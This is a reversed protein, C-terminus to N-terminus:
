GRDGGRGTSGSESEGPGGDEGSGPGENGAKHRGGKAREKGGEGRGEGEDGGQSEEFSAPKTKSAWSRMIPEERYRDRPRLFGPRANFLWWPLRMVVDRVVQKPRFLPETYPVGLSTLASLHLVIAVVGATVGYLGLTAGLIMLAFRLMRLALGMPYHAVSFSSLATVAVVIVMIPSIIKASVAAEGLLLAGVIGVTQGVAGPLRIGAERVLELALEMILAEVFAPFPVPERSAAIAIALSTPIMEQHFTTIAIYLAPILASVAAAVLRLTRLLTGYMSREYYDEPSQFFAPLTSPVVLAMPTGDVLIVARGEALASVVTDPRESYHVQPFPSWPDDELVEEIVGSDPVIDIKANEIRRKIEEVLRPNIIGEMYAIGVDTKSVEGLRLMDIRLKPDRIRRRILATNVRLTETFGERPGRIVRETSPEAVTRHEWGKTEVVVAATAGDVLIGTEGTMVHDILEELTTVPAGYNIPFLSELLLSAAGESTLRVRLTPTHRALIMSTQLVAFNQAERNALGEVYFLCADLEPDTGIKFKRLIIDKTGDGIISKLRGINVDLDPDIRTAGVKGGCGGEGGSEGNRRDGNRGESGRGDERGGWSGRRGEARGKGEGWIDIKSTRRANRTVSLPRKFLTM